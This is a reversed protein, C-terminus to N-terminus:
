PIIESPTRFPFKGNSSVLDMIAGDFPFMKRTVPGNHAPFEGIVPSNGECLGTVRLKSIKKSGLRLLHNQLCDLGRHNSVGDRENYRWQFKGAGHILHWRVCENISNFTDIFVNYLKEHLFSLFSEQKPRFSHSKAILFWPFYASSRYDNIEIFFDIHRWIDFITVIDIYLGELWLGCQRISGVSVRNIWVSSVTM